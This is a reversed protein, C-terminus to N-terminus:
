LSRIKEIFDENLKLNYMEFHYIEASNWFYEGDTFLFIQIFTPDDKVYDYITSCRLGYETGKRLYDLIAEKDEIPEDGIHGLISINKDGGFEKYDTIFKLEQLEKLDM